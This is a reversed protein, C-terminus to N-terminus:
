KDLVPKFHDCNNLRKQETVLIYMNRTITMEDLDVSYNKPETVISDRNRTITVKYNRHSIFYSSVRLDFTM